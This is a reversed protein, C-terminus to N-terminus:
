DFFERQRTIKDITSIRLNKSELRKRLLSIFLDHDEPLEEDRKFEIYYGTEGNKHFYYESITYKGDNHLGKETCYDEVAYNWCRTFIEGIDNEYPNWNDTGVLYIVQVFTIDRVM